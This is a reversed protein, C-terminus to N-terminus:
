RTEDERIALELDDLSAVFAGVASVSEHGGHQTVAKQTSRMLTAELASLQDRLTSLRAWPTKAIASIRRGLDLTDWNDDLDIVHRLTRGLGVLRDERNLTPAVVLFGESATEDLAKTWLKARANVTGPDGALSEVDSLWGRLTQVADDLAPLLRTDLLKELLM